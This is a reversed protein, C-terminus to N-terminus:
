KKFSIFLRPDYNYIKDDKIHSPQYSSLENSEYNACAHVEYVYNHNMLDVCSEDFYYVGDIVINGYKDTDLPIIHNQSEECNEKHLLNNDLNFCDNFSANLKYCKENKDFIFIITTNCTYGYIRNCMEENMIEVGIIDINAHHPFPMYPEYVLDFFNCLNNKYNNLIYLLLEIIEPDLFKDNFHKEFLCRTKIVDDM